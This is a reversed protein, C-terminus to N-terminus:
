IFAPQPGSRKIPIAIPAKSYIAALWRSMANGPTQMTPFNWDPQINTMMAINRPAHIGLM